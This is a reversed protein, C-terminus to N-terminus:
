LTREQIEESPSEWRIIDERMGEEERVEMKQEERIMILMDERVEEETARIIEMSLIIPDMAEMPHDEWDPLILVTLVLVEEEEQRDRLVRLGNILAEM